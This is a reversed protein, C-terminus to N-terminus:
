KSPQYCPTRASPRSATATATCCRTTPASPSAFSPKKSV